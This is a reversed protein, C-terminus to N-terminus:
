AEVFLEVLRRRQVKGSPGKPLEDLFCIRDPMKFKGLHDRRFDRLAIENLDTGEDISIAAEVRQRYDSCPCAFVAAEIAVPHRYLAEDIERPAIDEGGKIILEKLRGTVFEYGDEDQQTEARNM